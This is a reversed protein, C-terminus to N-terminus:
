IRMMRYLDLPRVSATLWKRISTRTRIPIPGDILLSGIFSRGSPPAAREATETSLREVESTFSDMLKLLQQLRRILERQSELRWIQNELRETCRRRTELLRRLDSCLEELRVDTASDASTAVADAIRSVDWIQERLDWLSGRSVLSHSFPGPSRRNERLLQERLLELRHSYSSKKTDFDNDVSWRAAAIEVM